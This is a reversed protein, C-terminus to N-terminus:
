AVGDRERSTDTALRPGKRRAIEGRLDDRESRFPSHRRIPLLALCVFLRYFYYFVGIGGHMSRGAERPRMQVAVERLELGSRHMTILVDVDPFDDPFGGHCLLRIAERSLAQFGSTPDTLRRRTWFSAFRAIARSAFSRLLGGRYSGAELYRSGIVVDAERDRIPQILKEVERPPHQGDADLQVIADHGHAMAYRYGTHLSAGYGLNFPHSLVTCGAMRALMATSDSSGDDIVLVEASPHVSRLEELLRPLSDEEDKAPILFLLRMVPSRETRGEQLLPKASEEMNAAIRHRM